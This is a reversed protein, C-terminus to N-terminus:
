LFGARQNYNSNNNKIYKARVHIAFASTKGAAALLLCLIIFTIGVFQMKTKPKRKENKPDHVIWM